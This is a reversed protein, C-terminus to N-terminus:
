FKSTAINVHFDAAYENANKKTKPGKFFLKVKDGTKYLIDVTVQPPKAIHVFINKDGSKSPLSDHYM